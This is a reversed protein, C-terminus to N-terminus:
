PQMGPVSGILLRFLDEADVGPTDRQVFWHCINACDRRLFEFGQPNGVLDIAQPLDIMVLRREHVLVNYPSLDGHAYGADVLQRLVAVMQEYLDRAEDPTPHLQALRPAATGDSSGIFEMMLETGTLQVPYPVAAGVSWLRSLVDMEAVAWRSALLQRGFDSRSAMARMERSNRVRRGEVYGADRHFMRHEAARYQKVALMCAASPQDPVDLSRILLSVDAEKGTKVVGHDTDIARPDTIVWQPVPSPGKAADRYTSWVPGDDPEDAAPDPTDPRTPATWGDDDFRRRKSRAAAM